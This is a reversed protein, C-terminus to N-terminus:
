DASQATTWDPRGVALDVPQFRAPWSSSHNEKPKKKKFLLYVFLDICCILLRLLQPPATSPHTPTASFPPPSPSPSTILHNAAQTERGSAGAASRADKGRVEPLAAPPVRGPRNGGASQGCRGVPDMVTYPLPVGSWPPWLAVSFVSRPIEPVHAQKRLSFTAQASGVRDLLVCCLARLQAFSVVVGEAVCHAPACM